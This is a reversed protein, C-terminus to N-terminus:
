KAKLIYGQLALKKGSDTTCEELGQEIIEYTAELKRLLKMSGTNRIDTEYYFATKGYASRAHDLVSSLAEYAYGKHQAAQKMWIGLEPCDASLGQLEVSGLFEDSESLIAFLLTERRDMDDLFGQLTSRADEISEFPDPWQFKTIEADFGSFYDNLYKMNFPVVRIGESKTM